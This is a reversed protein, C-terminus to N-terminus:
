IIDTDSSQVVAKKSGKMSLENGSVTMKKKASVTTEGKDSGVEMKKNSVLKAAGKQGDVELGNEGNASFKFHNELSFLAKGDDGIVRLINKDKVIMEYLKGAKLRINESANLNIDTANITVTSPASITISKNKTDMFITNGNKDLITISEEGEKDNLLITHGSRTKIAKLNNDPDAWEPKAKGHYHTGVVYPQDPNGHHFSVEVEDEIEPTFYMGRDGSSHKTMVRIWPTMAEGSQWKFQVKVRGLKDPDNNDMVVAVQSHAEPYRVHPNHPPSTVGLPIAEFSNYYNRNVDISHTVDTVRFRGVFVKVNQGRINNVAHVSIRAGVTLGPNQSAAQFVTADSLISAKRAEGRAKLVDSDDALHRLSQHPENPFLDESLSASDKAYNDLWGLEFSSSTFEVPKNEKANYTQYKFKAPRMRVGYQYNDLDSGLTLDINDPNPLKGFHINNGDYFFWQGFEEALRSLFAYNSERYKVIYPLKKTFTPDVTPKILNSSYTSFLTNAVDSLSSDLFSEVGVEEELLYTPSYGSLIVLSQEAHVRSIKVDCVVGRFSFDPGNNTNPISIEVEKGLYSLSHDINVSNLGESKSLQIAIEFTHHWDLKQNLHIQFPDVREGGITVAISVTALTINM